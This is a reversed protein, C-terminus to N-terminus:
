NNWNYIPPLTDPNGSSSVASPDVWGEFFLGANGDGLDLLFWGTDAVGTVAAITGPEVVTVVESTPLPESHLDTADQFMAYTTRAGPAWALPIDVLAGGSIECHSEPIWRLRLLGINRAQAIGPDFGLWGDATRAHVAVQDGTTLIGFADADLSPRMYAQIDEGATLVFVGDVTLELDSAGKDGAVGGLMPACLLFVPLLPTVLLSVFAFM